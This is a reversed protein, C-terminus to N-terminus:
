DKSIENLFAKGFQEYKKEGVGYIHMMDARNQPLFYSLEQLTKDPFVMYPPIRKKKAIAMRLRRLRSFIQQQDTSTDVWSPDEKEFKPIYSKKKSTTKRPKKVTDENHYETQKLFIKVEGNFLESCTQNLVLTLYEWDRIVIYERVLVQRIVSRWQSKNLHKGIGYVSLTDHRWEKVKANKSGRLIDIIHNAGFRQETRYIASLLKLVDETADWSAKVSECNDCQQCNEKHYDEGFYKLLPVRRCQATECLSLMKSLKQKAFSKYKPDADTQEMMKSLKVVDQLGYYLMASAPEGDRGARGTEQYYSEISKPLDMHIVFRVDPRNIGMGFAITACVIVSDQTDFLRQNHARAEATMGAHYCIAPLGASVLDDCVKEVKKRSLCYVIGTQDEHKSQIFSIAQQVEGNKEGISYHINPRDFSSVYVAPDDLGLQEIIDQRTKDDATATLAIIPVEALENKLLKLRMYDSRFEHGWQSVCHAEDVAILAIDMEKLMGLLNSNLIGEPAMYLVSIEKRFVRGLIKKREEFPISSNMCAAEVGYQSLNMVQDQMLSILPSIVLTLKQTFLAPIQYCLSKGGGTPMIALTDRRSLVSEIIQKQDFRFNQYGFTQKLIRRLEKEM